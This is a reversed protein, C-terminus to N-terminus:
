EALELTLLAAASLMEPPWEYPYSPFSVREHEFFSDDGFSGGDLLESSSDPSLETSGIVKGSQVLGRATATQLFQRLTAAARPTVRRFIQSGSSFLNGDPDRFSAAAPASYRSPTNQQVPNEPVIQRM